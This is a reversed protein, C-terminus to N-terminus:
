RTYTMCNLMQPTSAKVEASSKLSVGQSTSIVEIYGDRYAEDSSWAGMTMGPFAITGRDTSLHSVRLLELHSGWLDQLLERIGSDSDQDTTFHIGFLPCHKLIPRHSCLFGALDSTRCELNSIVIEELLPLHVVDAFVRFAHM